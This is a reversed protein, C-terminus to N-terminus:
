AGRKNWECFTALMELYLHEAPFHKEEANDNDAEHTQEGHIRQTNGEVTTNLSELASGRIACGEGHVICIPTAVALGSFWLEGLKHLLTNQLNAILVALDAHDTRLLLGLRCFALIDLAEGAEQQLRCIALCDLVGPVATRCAVHGEQVLLQTAPNGLGSKGYLDLKVLSRSLNKTLNYLNM